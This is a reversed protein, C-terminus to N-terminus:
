QLNTLQPTPSDTYVGLTQFEGILPRTATIAQNFSQPQNFTLDVYFRYEWECGVIPTSQIKTLNLDYFSWITLIKSLAGHTHPLTFVVSAKNHLATAPIDKQETRELVLFRTFNHKNTEIGHELIRLGYLNAALEPCIAAHGALNQRAINSAAGATDFMEVMRWKPRGPARLFEQCQLLAMPHSEVQSIDNLSQGPLAALVHSIRKKHEGVITVKGSRLLEHNALLPGAITNEIAMLAYRSAGQELSQILQEFTECEVPMVQQENFYERAAADHFCGAIGQIAVHLPQCNAQIESHQLM